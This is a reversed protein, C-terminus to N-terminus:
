EDQTPTMLEKNGLMMCDAIFIELVTGDDEEKILSSASPSIEFGDRGGIKFVEKNEDVCAFLGGKNFHNIRKTQDDLSSTFSGWMYYNLFGVGVIVLFLYFARRLKQRRADRSRRSGVIM